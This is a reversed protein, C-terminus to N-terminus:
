IFGTLNEPTFPRERDTIEVGTGDKSAPERGALDTLIVTGNAIDRLARMAADYDAKIKAEPETIHLKWLTIAQAIDAIMAPITALPLSHRAALYGDITADADAQARAVVAADVAHNRVEARDTLDILMAEGVRDTLQQLTCYAM